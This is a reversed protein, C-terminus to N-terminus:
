GSWVSNVWEEHDMRNLTEEIMGLQTRAEEILQQHRLTRSLTQVMELKRQEREDHKMFTLDIMKHPNNLIYLDVIRKKEHSLEVSFEEGSEVVYYTCFM